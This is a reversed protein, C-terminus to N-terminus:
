WTRIRDVDIHTFSPYAKIGGFGLERALFSVQNPTMSEIIIDCAMGKVHSSKKAGGIAKNHEVSRYGSLITVPKETKDRILQLGLILSPHLFVIDAGDKSAYESLSFNRSLKYEKGQKSLEFKLVDSPNQTNLLNM